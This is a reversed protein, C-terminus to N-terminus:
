PRAARDSSSRGKRRADQEFPQGPRVCQFPDHQQNQYKVKSVSDQFSFHRRPCFVSLRGSPDSQPSISFHSRRVVGGGATQFNQSVGAEEGTELGPEELRNHTLELPEAEVLVLNETRFSFRGIAHEQDHMAAKRDAAAIGM